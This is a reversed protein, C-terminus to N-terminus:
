ALYDLVTGIPIHDSPVTDSPWERRFSAQAEETFTFTECPRLTKSVWIYDLISGGSHSMEISPTQKAYSGTTRYVDRMPLLPLKPLVLQDSCRHENPLRGTQLLHYVPSSRLINFDGAIVVNPDSSDQEVYRHMRKLLSQIQNYRTAETDRGAELHVNALYLKRHKPGRFVAILARSRSELAECTWDDSQKALIVNGVPHNRTVNQLLLQYGMSQLRIRFDCKETVTDFQVEQLCFFDANYKEIADLIKPYRINWELSGKAESYPFTGPRAYIPALINWSGLKIRHNQIGTSSTLSWAAIFIRYYFVLGLRLFPLAWDHDVFQYSSRVTRPACCKKRMKNREKKSIGISCYKEEAREEARNTLIIKM